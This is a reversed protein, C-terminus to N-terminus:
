LDPYAIVLRARRFHVLLQIIYSFYFVKKISECVFLLDIALNLVRGLYHYWTTAHTGPLLLALPM